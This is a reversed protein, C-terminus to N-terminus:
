AASEMVALYKEREREARELEASLRQQIRQYFLPDVLDRGDCLERKLRRSIEQAIGLPIREYVVHDAYPRLAPVFNFASAIEEREVPSDELVVSQELEIQM